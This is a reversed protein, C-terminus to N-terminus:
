FPRLLTELDVFEVEIRDVEALKAIDYGLVRCGFGKLIGATILGIKGLGILGVTRGHLDFGM